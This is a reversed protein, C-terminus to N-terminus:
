SRGGGDSFSAVCCTTGLLAAADRLVNTAQKEVALRQKSLEGGHGVLKFLATLGFLTTGLSELEDDTM